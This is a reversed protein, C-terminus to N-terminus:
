IIIIAGIKGESSDLIGNADSHMNLTQVVNQHLFHQEIHHRPEKLPERMFLSLGQHGPQQRMGSHVSLAM